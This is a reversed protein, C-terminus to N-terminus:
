KKAEMFEKLKSSALKRMSLSNKEGSTMEAFTKKHGDPQFIPDWGFGLKGRPSVIKGPIVGEFFHINDNDQSYGVITKAQADLNGMKTAIDSLGDNGVTKMFWKVLPGPLGNLCDSYLSTDEVIFQGNHHKQAELLKARIIERADFHQIEPLDIDLQKINGLVSRVEDFKNQNGTIFFIDM